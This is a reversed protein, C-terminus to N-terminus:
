GVVGVGRADFFLVEVEDFFRRFSKGGFGVFVRVVGGVADFGVGDGVLPFCGVAFVFRGEHEGGGGVRLAFDLRHDADGDEAFVSILESM